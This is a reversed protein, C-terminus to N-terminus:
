RNAVYQRYVKKRRLLKIGLRAIEIHDFGMQVPLKEIDFWRAEAADDGGKIKRTRGSLIGMFAVTIQRARPDRGVAGFTRMQELCVGTLGTEEALERAVSDELEEDMEIFGGPLSWMGKFPETGRKILLLRANGGFLGFVVADVSVTPRPWEYVYKSKTSMASLGKVKADYTYVCEAKTDLVFFM